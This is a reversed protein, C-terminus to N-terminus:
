PGLTVKGGAHDVSVQFYRLIDMGLLSPLKSNAATPRAIYINRTLRQESGDDHTFVYVAEHPYYNDRGGIGDIPHPAAWKSPDLLAARDIRLKTMADLPHLCTNTTGTDVMFEVDVFDWIVGPLHIAVRVAPMTLIFGLGFYGTILSSPPDPYRRHAAGM